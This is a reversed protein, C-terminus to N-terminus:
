RVREEDPRAGSQSAQAAYPCLDRAARGTIVDEAFAACTPAGCVACDKGPLGDAVRELETLKRIATAM